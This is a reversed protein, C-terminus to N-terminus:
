HWHSKIFSWQLLNRHDHGLCRSFLHDDLCPHWMFFHSTFIKWLDIPGNQNIALPQLVIRLLKEKFRSFHWTGYTGPDLSGNNGYLPPHDDVWYYPNIYGNYPNGILPQIVMGLVLLKSGSVYLDEQTLFETAVVVGVIGVGGVVLLWLRKRWVGM